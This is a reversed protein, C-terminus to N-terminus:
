IVAAAAAVAVVGAMPVSSAALAAASEQLSAQLRLLLSWALLAVHLWGMLLKVQRVCWTLLLLGVSQLLAQRQQSLRDLQALGQLATRLCCGLHYNLQLWLWCIQYHETWRHLHLV